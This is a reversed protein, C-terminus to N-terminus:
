AAAQGPLAGQERWLNLTDIAEARGVADFQELRAYLAHAPLRVVRGARVALVSVAARGLYAAKCAIALAEGTPEQVIRQALAPPLDLFAALDGAWDTRRKERAATILDYEDPGTNDTRM